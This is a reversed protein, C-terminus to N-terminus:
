RVVAFLRKSITKMPKDEPGKIHPNIWTPRREISKEGCPQQRWHGAVWWRCSWDPHEKEGNTSSQRYELSRLTVVHCTTHKFQIKDAIKRSARNGQARASVLIRQRLFALFAFFVRHIAANGPVGARKIQSTVTEGFYFQSLYGTIGRGEIEFWFHPIFGNASYEPGVAVLDGTEKIESGIRSMMWGMARLRLPNILQPVMEDRTIVCEIPKALWIFAHNCPFDHEKIPWDPVSKSASSVLDCPSSACYMPEALLLLSRTRKLDRIDQQDVTGGPVLTEINGPKLMRITQELLGAQEIIAHSAQEVYIM